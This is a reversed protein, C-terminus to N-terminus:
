LRCIRGRITERVATKERGLVGGPECSVNLFMWLVFQTMRVPTTNEKRRKLTGPWWVM